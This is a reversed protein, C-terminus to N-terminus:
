VKEDPELSAREASDGKHAPQPEASGQGKQSASGSTKQSPGDIFLLEMLPGETHYVLRFLDREPFRHSLSDLDADSRAFIVDDRFFPDPHPLQLVWSGSTRGEYIEDIVFPAPAVVVANHVGISELFRLPMSQYEAQRRLDDAYGLMFIGMAGVCYSALMWRPLSAQVGHRKALSALREVGLVALLCLPVATESHHIPGVMHVGVNDHLLTVGLGLMLAGALIGSLPRARSVGLWALPLGLPGLFWVSLMLLNFAGHGGFRQLLPTDPRTIGNSIAGDAWRAQLLASGTLQTNYWAFFLLPGLAGVLALALIGVADREGRVARWILHAGPLCLLSGVEAPRATFGVGTILGLLLALAAYSEGERRSVLSTYAFLALAVCFRSFIHAHTTMSLTSAMPSFLWIIGALAAARRGLLRAATAAVVIGTIASVIAYLVSQLGTWEALAAFLLTGPFDMSAVLGDREFVFLDTFSKAPQLAPVMLNGSSLIRGGFRVANEDDTIPLDLLLYRRGLQAVVFLLAFFALGLLRWQGADLRDLSRGMRSFMGQLQPQLGYCLALVGTVALLAHSLWFRLEGPAIHRLGWSTGGGFKVDFGVEVGLRFYVLLLFLGTLIPGLRLERNTDVAESM